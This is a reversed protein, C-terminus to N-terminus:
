LACGEGVGLVRVEVDPAVVRARAAFREGADLHYPRRRYFPAFTAWHMPIALRPRLLVLAEAAGEADLHGPPLRPGWGAVPLLAVDLGPALEAMGEFRDTDGAFYVRRTGEVLYGLAGVRAGFAGRRGADHEAHTARVVLDGVTVQEDERLESVASFGKRALLAGAGRPVVVRTDRGLRDLSRLDLHDWHVHSVLVADIAALQERVPKAVRRLHAARSRLLPDTVLRAGDLEILATAHGLWTVRGPSAAMM